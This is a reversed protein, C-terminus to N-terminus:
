ASLVSPRPFGRFARRWRPRPWYILAPSPTLEHCLVLLGNWRLDFGDAVLVLAGVDRSLLQAVKHSIFFVRGLGHEVRTVRREVRLQDPLALVLLVGFVEGDRHHRNINLLLNVRLGDFLCQRANFLRFVVLGVEKGVEIAARGCEVLLNLKVLVLLIPCVAKHKTIREHHHGRKGLLCPQLALHLGNIEVRRRAYLKATVPLYACPLAVHLVALGLIGRTLWLLHAGEPISPFETYM